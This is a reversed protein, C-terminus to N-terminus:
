DGVIESQRYGQYFLLTELNGHRVALNAADEAAPVAHYAIGVGARRLMAIDNAGDGVALTESPSLGLDRALEDLITRKADRDLLPEVLRGTLRGDRMELTNARHLGFGISAAVRKTFWTFGGSVLATQAGHRTMTAILTRAGPMPAIDHDWTEQLLGEPADALLAVRESLSDGFDLEGRITRATIAAITDGIGARAALVDICEATIFTSDMDGVLLKKRRGHVPQVARDIAKRDLIADLLGPATDARTSSFRIDAARDEQLWVLNGDLARAVEAALGPLAGDPAPAVLTAVHVM